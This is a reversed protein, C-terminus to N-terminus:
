LNLLFCFPFFLLHYHWWLPLPQLWAAWLSFIGPAGLLQLLWWLPHFYGQRCRSKSSRAEPASVLSKQQKLVVLRSCYGYSVLVWLGFSGFSLALFFFIHEQSFNSHEVIANLEKGRLSFLSFPGLLFVPNTNGACGPAEDAQRASLCAVGSIALSWWSTIDLDAQFWGRTLLSMM